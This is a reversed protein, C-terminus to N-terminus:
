PPPPAGAPPSGDPADGRRGPLWKVATRPRAGVVTLAQPLVRAEFLDVGPYPDGDIQVATPAGAIVRVLHGQQYHLGPVDARFKLLGKAAIPAWHALTPPAVVAVDLLGDDVVAKPFLDVGLPIRGANGVLVSWARGRGAPRGDLEVSAPRPRRAMRVLAPELYAGWSLTKKLAPRTDAVTDADFGMGVVVLFLHREAEEGTWLDVEGLDVRWPEGDLAGAVAAGLSGPTHINRAFLNATGSPVVGVPVGTGILATAVHRVTGDGGCVVVREAGQGLAHDAQETGPHELTTEYVDPEPWDRRRCGERVLAVARVGRGHVPNIVVAVQMGTM